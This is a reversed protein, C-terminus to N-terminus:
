FSELGKLLYLLFKLMFRPTRAIWWRGKTSRSVKENFLAMWAVIYDNWRVRSNVRDKIKFGIMRGAKARATVNYHFPMSRAQGECIEEIPEERAILVGTKVADAFVEVGAPTRTIVASHKIPEEKMRMSWIDGVSIDGDYGAHDYCHHCKQQCFFYLNQYDSFYSFPKEILQGKDFEARLTGRWHGQRHRFDLLQAGKPTLKRIVMDTLEPLSNHGCFLTIVIYIKEALDTDNEMAQRLTSTDCPLLTVALRGNFSRLLPLAEESFYVAMYKSGQASLLEEATKAIFFEPRVKGERVVTRCVLAGEVRKSELLFNLLSSTVGGSAAKERVNMNGAYAFFSRNFNGIYQHIKEASWNKRPLVSVIKNKQNPM